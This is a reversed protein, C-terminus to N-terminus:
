KMFLEIHVIRMKNLRKKRECEVGYMMEDDKGVVRSKPSWVDNSCSRVNCWCESNV